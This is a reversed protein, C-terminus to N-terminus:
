DFGVGFGHHDTGRGVVGLELRVKGWAGRDGIMDRVQEVADRLCSFDHGDALQIRATLDVEAGGVLARDVMRLRTGLDSPRVVRRGISRGIAQDDSGLDLVAAINANHGRGWGGL